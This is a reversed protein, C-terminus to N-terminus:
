SFVIINFTQKQNWRKVSRRKREKGEEDVGSEEESEWEDGGSDIYVTGFELIM